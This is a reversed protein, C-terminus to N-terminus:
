SVELNGDNVSFKSASLKVENNGADISIKGSTLVIENDGADVSIKGDASITANGSVSVTSDDALTLSIDGGAIIEVSGDNKLWIKSVIDGNDPDRAYIMKDGPEAGQSVVLSGISVFHGTGEVRSILVREEDLPPADEGAPGFQEVLQNQGYHAEVTQLIYKDIETKILRAIRGM